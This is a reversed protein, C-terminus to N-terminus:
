QREAEARTGGDPLHMAALSGSSHNDGHGGSGIDGERMVVDHVWRGDREYEDM